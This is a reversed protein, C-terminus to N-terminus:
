MSRRATSVHPDAPQGGPASVHDTSGASCRYRGRASVQLGTPSCSGSRAAPCHGTRPRAVPITLDLVCAHGVSATIGNQRTAPVGDLPTRHQREASAGFPVEPGTRGPLELSARSLVAALLVVHTPCAAFRSHGELAFYSKISAEDLETHRGACAVGGCGGGLLESDADLRPQRATLHRGEVRGRSCGSDFTKSAGGSRLAPRSTCTLIYWGCPRFM